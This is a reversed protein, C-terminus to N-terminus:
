FTMLVGHTSAVLTPLQDLSVRGMLSDKLADLYEQGADDAIKRTRESALELIAMAPDKRAGSAIQWTLESLGLTESTEAEM